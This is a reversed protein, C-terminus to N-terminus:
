RAFTSRRRENCTTCDLTATLERLRDALTLGEDDVGVRHGTSTRRPSRGLRRLAVCALARVVSSPEHAPNTAIVLRRPPPRTPDGLEDLARVIAARVDADAECRVPLRSALRRRLAACRADRRAHALAHAAAARGTADEASCLTRVLARRVPPDDVVGSLALARMALDAGDTASEFALLAGRAVRDRKAMRGLQLIAARRVQLDPEQRPDLKAVLLDRLSSPRPTADVLGSLGLWRVQGDPERDPMSRARLAARIEEDNRGRGDALARVADRRVEPDRECAADCAALLAARARADSPDARALARVAASRVEAVSERRPESRRILADRIEARDVLARLAVAAGARVRSSREHAPELARRLVAVVRPSAGAQWFLATMARSRVRDDPDSQAASALADRLPDHMEAPLWNPEIAAARVTASRERRHDLSRALVPRLRSDTRAIRAVVFAAAARMGVDREAEPDLASVLVERLLRDREAVVAIGHATASRTDDDLESRLRQLLARRLAPDHFAPETCAAVARQRVAPEPHAVLALLLERLPQVGSSGVHTRSLERVIVGVLGVAEDSRLPFDSGDHIQLGGHPSWGEGRAIVARCREVVHAALDGLADSQLDPVEAACHAATLLLADSKRRRADSLLQRVLTEARDPGTRPLEGAALGVFRRRGFGAAARLRLARVAGARRALAAAALPEALMAHAFRRRGAHRRDTVLIGVQELTSLSAVLDGRATPAGVSGLLSAAEHTTFSALGREDLALAIRGAVDLLHEVDDPRARCPSPAIEIMLAAARRLMAATGSAAATAAACLLWLFGPEHEIVQDDIAGDLACTLRRRAGTASTLGVFFREVLRRSADHDPDALELVRWGANALRPASCRGYRSALVVATRPRAELLARLNRGFLGRRLSARDDASADFDDILLLVRGADFAARLAHHLTRLVEAPEAALREVVVRSIRAVIREAHAIPAHTAGPGDGVSQDNRLDFALDAMRIRVPLRPAADRRSAPHATWARARSLAEWALLTTKGSGPRGLLVIRDWSLRARQWDDCTWWPLRREPDPDPWLRPARLVHPVSRRTGPLDPAPFTRCVRRPEFASELTTPPLGPGREVRLATDAERELYRRLVEESTLRM